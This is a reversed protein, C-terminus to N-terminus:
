KGRMRPFDCREDGATIRFIKESSMRSYGSILLFIGRLARV